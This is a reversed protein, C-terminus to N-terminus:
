EHNFTDQPKNILDRLKNIDDDTLEENEAFHLLAPGVRGQFVKKLFFQSESSQCESESLIAEYHKVRGMKESKLVKKKDLRALFTNVTKQSWNLSPDLLPLIESATLGPQVWIVRMVNWESDTIRNLTRM